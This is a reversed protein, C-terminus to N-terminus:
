EIFLTEGGNRSCTAAWVAPAVTFRVFRVSGDAFLANMGGIHSSGFQQNWVAGSSPNPADADPQPTRPITVTTGSRPHTYTFTGGGIRVVDEDWGANVYPENDGGDNGWQKPHLWKEAVLLTNSTGDTLMTLTVPPVNTRVIVGDVVGSGSNASGDTPTGNSFLTGANGAYDCKASRGYIGPLRRSPCYYLNIPTVYLQSRNPLNFLTEQEIYPLIQYSWSFGTRDDLQGNANLASANRDDWNCCSQNPQGAPRGDRGGPPLRGFTEHYNHCALGIQKLHNACRMRSAAERVRQIAPLLLAMLLGIIAIVVLLEVLTFGAKMESTCHKKM